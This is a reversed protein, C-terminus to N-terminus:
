WYFCDYKPDVLIDRQFKPDITLILLGSIRDGKIRVELPVDLYDGWGVIGTVVSPKPQSEGMLTAATMRTTVIADLMRPPPTSRLSELHCPM